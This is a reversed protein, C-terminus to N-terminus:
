MLLSRTSFSNHPVPPLPPSDRPDRDPNYDLSLGGYLSNLDALRCEDSCYLPTPNQDIVTRHKGATPATQTLTPLVASGVDRKPDSRKITGNPKIRGTGRVLGGAGKQRITGTSRRVQRSPSLRTPCADESLPFFILAPVALFSPHVCRHCHALISSPRTDPLPRFTTSCSSRPIAQPSDTKFLRSVLLHRPSEHHSHPTFLIPLSVSPCSNNLVSPFARDPSVKDRNLAVVTLCRVLRAALRVTSNPAFFPFHFSISTNIIPLHVHVEGDARSATGAVSCRGGSM